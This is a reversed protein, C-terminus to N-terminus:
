WYGLFGTTGLPPTALMNINYSVIQGDDAVRQSEVTGTLIFDKTRINQLRVRDGPM